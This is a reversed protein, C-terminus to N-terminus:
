CLLAIKTMARERSSMSCSENSNRTSVTPLCLSLVFSNKDIKACWCCPTRVPTLIMISQGPTAHTKVIALCKKVENDNEYKKSGHCYDVHVFHFGHSPVACNIPTRYANNYIRQNLVNAIDRPVRYQTTLRIKGGMDGNEELASVDLLSAVTEIAHSTVSRGRFSRGKTTFSGPAYPHLQHKDGVCILSKVSRQLRSIGLLEYSPICGAEDFVVITEKGAKTNAGKINLRGFACDFDESEEDKPVPFKHSSGITGMMVRAEELIEVSIRAASRKLDEELQKLAFSTEEAKEISYLESKLVTDLCIQILKLGSIIQSIRRKWPLDVLPDKNKAEDSKDAIPILRGLVSSNDVITEELENETFTAKSLLTKIANATRSVTMIIEVPQTLDDPDGRAILDSRTDADSGPPLRPGLAEISGALNRLMADKRVAIIQRKDKILRRYEVLEPHM